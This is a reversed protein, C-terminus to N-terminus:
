AFTKSSVQFEDVLIHKCHELVHPSTRFLRLGFVLLDDFDLSNAERLSAEYEAYLQPDARFTYGIDVVIFVEAIFATTSTSTGPDNAARIAMDDPSEGKAKAKSIESLVATDKLSMSAAELVEAKEKILRSM